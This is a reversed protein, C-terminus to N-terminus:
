SRNKHPRRRVSWNVDEIRWQATELNFKWGPTVHNSRFTVVICKNRSPDEHDPRFIAEKGHGDVFKVSVGWPGYLFVDVVFGLSGEGGPLYDNVLAFAFDMNLYKSKLIDRLHEAGGAIEQGLERIGEMAKNMLFRSSVGFPSYPDSKLEGTCRSALAVPGLRLIATSNFQSPEQPEGKERFVHRPFGEPNNETWFTCTDHERFISPDGLLALYQGFQIGLDTRETNPRILNDGLHYAPRFENGM